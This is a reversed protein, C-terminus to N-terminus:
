RWLAPLGSYPESGASPTLSEQFPAGQAARASGVGRHHSVPHRPHEADGPRHHTGSARRIGPRHRVVRHPRSRPGASPTAASGRPHVTAVSWPRPGGRRTTPPTTAARSSARPGPLPRATPARLSSRGRPRQRGGAGEVMPGVDAAPVSDRLRAMTVLCARAVSRVLNTQLGSPALRDPVFATKGGSRRRSGSPTGQGRRDAVPRVWARDKPRCPTWSWVPEGAGVPGNVDTVGATGLGGATEPSRGRPVELRKGRLRYCHRGFRSCRPTICCAILCPPSWFRM